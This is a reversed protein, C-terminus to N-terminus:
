DDPYLKKVADEIGKELEIEDAIDRLDPRMWEAILENSKWVEVSSLQGSASYFKAVWARSRGGYEGYDRESEKSGDDRFVLFTGTAWGEDWYSVEQLAGNEWFAAHQGIRQGGKRFAGRYKCRGNKWHELWLGEFEQPPYIMAGSDSYHPYPSENTSDM